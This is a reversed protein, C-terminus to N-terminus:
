NFRQWTFEPATQSIYSLVVFRLCRFSGFVLHSTVSKSHHETKLVYFTSCLTDVWVNFIYVKYM